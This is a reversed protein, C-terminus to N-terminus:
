PGETPRGDLLSPQSITTADAAVGTGPMRLVDTQGRAFAWGDKGLERKLAEVLRGSPRREGLACSRLHIDSVGCRGSLERLSLGRLALVSYFRRLAVPQKTGDRV